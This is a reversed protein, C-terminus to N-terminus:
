SGFVWAETMFPSTLHRAASSREAEGTGNSPHTLFNAVAKWLDMLLPSLHCAHLKCSRAGDRRECTRANTAEERGRSQRLVRLSRTEELRGSGFNGRQGSGIRQQEPSGRVFAGTTEGKKAEMCGRLSVHLRQSAEAIRRSTGPVGRALHRQSRSCPWLRALREVKERCGQRLQLQSVAMRTGLRHSTRALPTQSPTEPKQPEAKQYTASLSLAGPALLM